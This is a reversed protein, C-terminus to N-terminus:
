PRDLHRALVLRLPPALTDLAFAAAARDDHLGLVFHTVTGDPTKIVRREDESPAPQAREAYSMPRGGPSFVIGKGAVRGLQGVPVGQPDLVRLLGGEDHLRWGAGGSTLTADDGGSAAALAVLAEGAPGRLVLGGGSSPAGLMGLLHRQGDCLPQGKATEVGNPANPQGAAIPVGARLLLLLEGDQKRYELLPPVEGACADLAARRPQCGAEIVAIALLGSLWSTRWRHQTAISM